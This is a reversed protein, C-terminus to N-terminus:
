KREEEKKMVVNAMNKNQIKLHVIELDRLTVQSM